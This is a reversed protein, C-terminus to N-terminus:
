GNPVEGDDLCELDFEVRAEGHQRALGARAFRQQEVRQRQQEAIAEFRALKPKACVARFYGGLELQLIRRGRPSPEDFVIERFVPQEQQATHEIRLASAARVDVAARRRQRLELGDALKQDIQVPLVRMLREAARLSLAPQEIGVATKRRQRAFDCEGPPRPLVSELARIAAHLVGRRDLGLAVQQGAAAGLELRKRRAGRFPRAQRLRLRPQRM